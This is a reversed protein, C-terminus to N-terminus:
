GYKKVCKGNQKKYGKPCKKMDEKIHFKCPMYWIKGDLEHEHMGECGINNAM